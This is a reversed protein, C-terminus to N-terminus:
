TVVKTVNGFPFDYKQLLSLRVDLEEDDLDSKETCLVLRSSADEIGIMEVGDDNAPKELGPSLKSADYFLSTMTPTLTRHPDLVAHPPTGTITDCSLIIFDTQKNLTISIPFSLIWPSPIVHISDKLTRLADATGTDEPVERVKIDM